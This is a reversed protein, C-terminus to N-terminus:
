RSLRARASDLEERSRRAERDVEENVKQTGRMVVAPFGDTVDAKGQNIVCNKYDQVRALYANFDRVARNYSVRATSSYITPPSPKYCVAPKWECSSIECGGVGGMLEGARAADTPLFSAVLFM